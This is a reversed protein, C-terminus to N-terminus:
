VCRSCYLHLENHDIPSGCRVCLDGGEFHDNPEIVEIRYDFAINERAFKEAEERTDFIQMNGEENLVPVYESM